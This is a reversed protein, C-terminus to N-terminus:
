PRRGRRGGRGRQGSLNTSGGLDSLFERVREANIIDGQRVHAAHRQEQALRKGVLRGRSADTQDKALGARGIHSGGVFVEIFDENRRM